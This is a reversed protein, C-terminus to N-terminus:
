RNPGDGIAILADIADRVDGGENEIHWYVDQLRAPVDTLWQLREADAAFDTANKTM